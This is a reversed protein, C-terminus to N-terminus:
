FRFYLFPNFSGDILYATALGVLIISLVPMAIPIKKSVKMGIHKLWPTSGVAALILIRGYSKLYYIVEASILPYSRLGLMAGMVSGAQKVDPAQFLVFGFTVVLMLYIHGMWPDKEIPRLFGTKEIWLFVAFYLGWLIFNWSAGHWLGTLFWVILLNLIWRIKSCRNGGLPIYVYDRFWQGLSMHWRRWFETVSKSIYPYNFNEMFHFGFIRGLGIAMDSYGSFDYYIQFVFAIAYMWFYLVSLDNSSEFIGCLEGLSNAILVKKGLGIAFRCVGVCFDEYTTGRETLQEKIDTYRVIPGAILQPFMSIYLALSVFNRQASVDGRFVDIEYSLLQFTYFSIGVPLSLHLLSFEAGTWHRLNEIIFDTYKFYMLTGIHLFIVGILLYKAQKKGRLKEILRGATYGILISLIMLLVYKTEGWAYFILSAILLVGNKMKKPCLFYVGLVIPLFYYLFSLSSFLM